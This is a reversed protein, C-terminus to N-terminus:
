DPRVISSWSRYSTGHAPPIRMVKTQMKSEAKMLFEDHPGSRTQRLTHANHVDVEDFLESLPIPDAARPAFAGNPPAFGVAPFGQVLDLAFGTDPWGVLAVLAIRRGQTAKAVGAPQFQRLDKSISTWRRSLEKLAGLRDYRDQMGALM